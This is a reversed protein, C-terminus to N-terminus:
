PKDPRNCGTLLLERRIRQLCDSISFISIPSIHLAVPLYDLDKQSIEWLGYLGYPMDDLFMVPQFMLCNRRSFPSVTAWSDEASGVEDKRDHSSSIWTSSRLLVIWSWSNHAMHWTRFTGTESSKSSPPFYGPIGQDLGCVGYLGHPMDDFFTTPRFMRLIRMAFPM